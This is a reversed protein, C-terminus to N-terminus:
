PTAGDIALAARTTLTGHQLYERRVVILAELATGHAAEAAEIAAILRNLLYADSGSSYKEARLRAIAILDQVDESMEDREGREIIREVANAQREADTTM